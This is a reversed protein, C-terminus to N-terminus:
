LILLNLDKVELNVKKALIDLIAFVLNQFRNQLFISKVIKVNEEHNKVIDVLLQFFLEIDKTKYKNEYQTKVTDILKSFIEAVIEGYRDEINDYLRDAEKDVNVFPNVYSKLMHTVVMDKFKKKSVVKLYKAEEDLLECLKKVSANLVKRMEDHEPLYL